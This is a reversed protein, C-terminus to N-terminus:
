EAVETPNQSPDYVQGVGNRTAWDWHDLNVENTWYTVQETGETLQATLTTYDDLNESLLADAQTVLEQLTNVATQASERTAANVYQDVTNNLVDQCANAEGAAMKAAELMPERVPAVKEAIRALIAEQVPTTNKDLAELAKSVTATQERTEATAKEYAAKTALRDFTPPQYIASTTEYASALAACEAELGSRAACNDIISAADERADAVLEATEDYAGVAVDYANRAPGAEYVKWAVFGLALIGISILLVIIDSIRGAITKEQVAM